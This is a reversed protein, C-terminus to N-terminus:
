ASSCALNNISIPSGGVYGEYPYVPLSIYSVAIYSNVFHRGSIKEPIGIVNIYKVWFLRIDAM